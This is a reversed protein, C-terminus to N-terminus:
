KADRPMDILQGSGEVLMVERDTPVNDFTEREGSPWRVVLQDVQKADGLGFHIVRQCSCQFGHGAHLHRVIERDGVTAVATTGFADRATRTATVHLTLYRGVPDTTNSLLSSPAYLHLVAYDQKGDRNWDLTAVSRGLYEGEFYKGLPKAPLLEYRGNGRNSYLQPPMMYPQDKHRYDDVHGCAVVLDLRGDLEFDMFQTGFALVLISPERLGMNRTADIFFHPSEQKYYNNSQRFFNTVFIDLQGDEDGDGMAIGMSAQAMGEGDFAVGALMAQDQFQPPGGPKEAQNVFYFNATTDNAVYISLKGEGAMDAAVVGLGKGDAAVIGSEETVDVFRGDGQSLYLRDQDGPFNTPPCARKINGEWCEMTLADEGALYNVIYIDPWSDGNLDAIMCSTSWREGTIGALATVDTFTGDGENRYMRCPGISTVLLDPFGDNNFDGVSAGQSYLNDGLNAQDTVDLFKGNGLNRFLRDRYQTQHPDPPWPGGQAAYIDPWGDLDFDLVAMAGGLEQCLMMGPTEPDDGNNYTFHFGAEPAVDVFSPLGEAGEALQPSDGAQGQWTPLRLSSLDINNAPNANALVFPPNVVLQATLRDLQQTVDTRPDMKKVLHYWAWAEWMRGVSESIEAVALMEKPDPEFERREYLPTLRQVLAELKEARELFPLSDTERGLGALVRALRYNARQHNPYLRVAEWFCRAAGELDGHDQAWAGKAYWIGPHEGANRPLHRLWTQFKEANGSEVILRGLLSHAELQGPERTLIDRLMKEAETHKGDFIAIRATGILPVWDDPNVERSKQIIEPFDASKTDATALLMLPEMNISGQRIPELLYPISEWRRGEVGLIFALRENAILNGPRLALAERFRSEAERLNGQFMLVNGLSWLSTVYTNEDTRPVAGYFRLAAAVNGLKVAAEGAILLAQASQPDKELVQEALAGATVIDDRALADRADSLTAAVDVGPSETLPPPFLFDQVIYFVVGGLVVVSLVVLPWATAGKSKLSNGTM